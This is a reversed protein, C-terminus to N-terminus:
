WGQQVCCRFMVVSLGALSRNFWTVGGEKTSFDVRGM